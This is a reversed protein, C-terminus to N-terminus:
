GITRTYNILVRTLKCLVPIALGFEFNLYFIM